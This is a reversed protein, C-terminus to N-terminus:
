ETWDAFDVHTAVLLSVLTCTPSQFEIEFAQLKWNALICTLGTKTQKLAAYANWLLQEAAEAATARDIIPGTGLILHVVVKACDASDPGDEGEAGFVRVYGGAGDRAIRSRLQEFDKDKWDEGDYHALWRLSEVKAQVEKAVAERIQRLPNTTDSM